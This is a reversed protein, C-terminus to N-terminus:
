LNKLRSQEKSIWSETFSLLFITTKNNDTSQQQQQYFSASCITTNRELRMFGFRHSFFRLAVQSIHECELYSYIFWQENLFIDIAKLIFSCISGSSFTPFLTSINQVIFEVLIKWLRNYKEGLLEDVKAQRKASNHREENARNDVKEYVFSEEATRTYM